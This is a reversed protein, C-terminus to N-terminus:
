YSIAESKLYKVILQPMGFLHLDSESIILCDKELFSSKIKKIEFHYFKAVLLQHTLQHKIIESQNLYEIESQQVIENFSKSKMLPNASQKKLSEILPFEFLGKLIDKEIRQRIFVKDNFHFILYHFYRTRVKTIKEKVPLLEICDNVLAYCTQNFPCTECLPNSPKCHMAGFEMAAQNFIGPQQKDLLQQALAKFVKKGQISDIPTEIGFFRAFFRYVNGDVVAHPENFAISSIASATYDGIGKFSLLEEYTRPFGGVTDLMQQAAHLLNRARSYYGLGQWLKLVENENASALSKLDPFREVLRYYYPMGQDVRTQQLIIESLWIKYPDHIDRWPLNRKNQQYWALLITTFNMRSYPTPLLSNPAVFGAVVIVGLMIERLASM